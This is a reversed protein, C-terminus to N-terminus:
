QRLVEASRRGPVRRDRVKPVDGATGGEAPVNWPNCASRM